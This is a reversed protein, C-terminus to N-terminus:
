ELSSVCACFCTFSECTFNAFFRVKSRFFKLPDLQKLISDRIADNQYTGTLHVSESLQKVLSMIRSANVLSKSLETVTQEYDGLPQAASCSAGRPYYYGVLAGAFVLAALPLIKLALSCLDRKTCRPCAFLSRRYTGDQLPYMRVEGVGPLEDDNVLENGDREFEGYPHSHYQVSM